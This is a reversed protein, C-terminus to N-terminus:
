HMATQNEDFQEIVHLRANVKQKLNSNFTVKNRFANWLTGNIKNLIYVSIRMILDYMFNQNRM